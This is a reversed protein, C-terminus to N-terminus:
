ENIIIYKEFWSKNLSYYFSNRIIKNKDKNRKKNESVLKYIFKHNETTYGLNELCGNILIESKITRLIFGLIDSKHNNLRESHEIQVDYIKGNNSEFHLFEDFNCGSIAQTNPIVIETFKKDEIEFSNILTDKQIYIKNIPKIYNETVWFRYIYRKYQDDNKIIEDFVDNTKLHIMRYANSIDEFDSYVFEIYVQINENNIKELKFEIKNKISFENNEYVSILNNQCDPQQDPLQNYNYECVGYGNKILNKYYLYLLDINADSIYSPKHLPSINFILNNIEIQSRTKLEKIANEMHYQYLSKKYLYLQSVSPIIQIKDHSIQFYQGGLEKIKNKSYYKKIIGILLILFIIIIIVSIIKRM